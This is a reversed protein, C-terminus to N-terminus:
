EVRQEPLGNEPEVSTQPKRRSEVMGIVKRLVDIVEDVSPERKRFAIQVTATGVVYRQVIGSVRKPHRGMRVARARTAERETEIATLKGSLVKNVFASQKDVPLQAVAILHRKTLVSSADTRLDKQLTPEIRQLSLLRSIESEPKGLLEALEKQPYGHRDRLEALADSLEYPNLDARQWNEVIQDVLIGKREPRAQGGQMEEVICPVATLQAALAARFRREGSVIQYMRDAPDFWVRLPQRVGRRRVSATLQALETDSFERRPQEPDTRIRSVAISFAGRLRQRGEQTPDDAIAEGLALV